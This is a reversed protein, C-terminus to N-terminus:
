LAGPSAKIGPHLSNAVHSWSYEWCQPGAEAVEGGDSQHLKLVVSVYSSSSSIASPTLYVEM